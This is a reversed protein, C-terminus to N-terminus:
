ASPQTWILAIVPDSNAEPYLELLADQFAAGFRIWSQQIGNHAAPLDAALNWL